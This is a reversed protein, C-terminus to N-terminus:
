KANAEKQLNLRVRDLFFNSWDIKIVADVIDEKRIDFALHKFYERSVSELFGALQRQFLNLRIFEKQATKSAIMTKESSLDLLCSMNDSFDQLKKLSDAHEPRVPLILLCDIGELELWYELTKESRAYLSVVLFNDKYKIPRFINVCAKLISASIQFASINKGYPYGLVFLPLGMDWEIWHTNRRVSANNKMLNYLGERVGESWDWGYVIIIRTNYKRITANALKLLAYKYVQRLM